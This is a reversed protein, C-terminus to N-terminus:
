ARLLGRVLDEFEERTSRCAYQIRHACASQRWGELRSELAARYRSLDEADVSLRLRQDEEPDWWEFSGGWPEFEVPALLQLLSLERAGRRLRVVAQLDTDFLDGICFVRTANRFLQPARLLSGLGQRGAARAGALFDLLHSLGERPRLAFVRPASQAGGSLLVRVDAGLRAGLACLGAVCEAGRQLKGPPGVGMSASRDLALVWSQGAERRTVRVFPKDLRALLNWDLQRLDEGPRYPRFGALDAGLGALSGLGCGERRMLVRALRAQLAALRAPFDDGFHVTPAPLEARPTKLARAPHKM